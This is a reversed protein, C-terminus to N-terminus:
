SREKRIIVAAQWKDKNPKIKDQQDTERNQLSWTTSLVTSLCWINIVEEATAAIRWKQVWQEGDELDCVSASVKGQFICELLLNNWTAM